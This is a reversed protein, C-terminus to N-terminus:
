RGRLCVTTRSTFFVCFSLDEIWHTSYLTTTTLTFYHQQNLFDVKHYNTKGHDLLDKRIRDQDADHRYETQGIRIIWVECDNRDVAVCLFPEGNYSGLMAM